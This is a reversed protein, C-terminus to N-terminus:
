VSIKDTTEISEFYHSNPGKKLESVIHKNVNNTSFRAAVKIANQVAKFGSRGHSIICIGNVGLLPVGGYEAYDSRSRIKELVPRCLDLGRKTEPNKVAESEFTNLFDESVGEFFKLLVNGLFGECVVIDIKKEFIDRGEVNGIFNLSSNNLLNYAEKVLDNGKSDEEGVNLLGVKPEDVDLIYKCFVSAMIGYQLLHVPKCNLNAGADIVICYGHITPIMITIGPRRVGELTRLLVTSAAVAAGTNGASVIAEAEGKAVLEVSKTISSDTKKRVAFIAPENMEVVQSAHFISINNVCANLKSLVDEIRRKDGVLIIEIDKDQKAAEVAGKVIEQPAMDGGMADVAIKM